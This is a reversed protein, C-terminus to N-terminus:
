CDPGSLDSTCEEHGRLCGWGYYEGKCLYNLECVDYLNMSPEYIIMKEIDDVCWDNISSTSMWGWGLLFGLKGLEKSNWAIEVLYYSCDM